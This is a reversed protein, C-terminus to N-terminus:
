IQSVTFQLGNSEPGVMVVVLPKHLSIPVGLSM